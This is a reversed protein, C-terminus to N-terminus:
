TKLLKKLEALQSNLYEYLKKTEEISIGNKQKLNNKVSLYREYANTGDSITKILEIFDKKSYDENKILKKIIYLTRIRLVLTYAVRDSLYIRNNRMKDIIKKIIKLKNETTDIYWKINRKTIKTEISGLYASNLITKAERIMQGIPFLDQKLKQKLLESSILLINYNGEKIMEKDINCTIILIDIDSTEEEERRAYSGVLYVGIIEELDIYKKVISIVDSLIMEPTKEVLEIKVKKNLWAKPLIVASSNGAKVAKKIRVEM